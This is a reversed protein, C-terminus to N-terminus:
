HLDTKSHEERRDYTLKSAREGRHLVLPAEHASLTAPTWRSPRAFRRSVQRSQRHHNLPDHTPSQQPITLMICQSWNKLGLYTTFDVRLLCKHHRIHPPRGGVRSNTRMRLCCCKFRLTSDIRLPRLHNPAHPAVWWSAFEGREEDPLVQLPTYFRDAASSSSPSPTSFAWRSSLEREENLSLIQLPTNVSNAASSSSRSHTPPVWQSTLEDEEQDLLMPQTSPECTLTESPQRELAVVGSQALDLYCSRLIDYRARPGPHPIDQKM